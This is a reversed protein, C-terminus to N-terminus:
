GTTTSMLPSSSSCAPPQQQRSLPEGDDKDLHIDRTAPAYIAFFGGAMGGARARPLDIHGGEDGELFRRGERDNNLWLRLLTDNHGDFVPQM